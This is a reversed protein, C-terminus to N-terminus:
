VVGPHKSRQCVEVGVQVFPPVFPPPVVTSWCYGLVLGGRFEFTVLACGVGTTFLGVKKLPSWIVAGVCWRMICFLVGPSRGLMLCTLMMLGVGDTWEGGGWCLFTAEELCSFQSEFRWCYPDLLHTEWLYKQARSFILFFGNCLCVLFCTSWLSIPAGIEDMVKKVQLLRLSGLGVWILEDTMRNTRRHTIDSKIIRHFMYKIGVILAETLVDQYQCRLNGMSLRCFFKNPQINKSYLSSERLFWPSIM